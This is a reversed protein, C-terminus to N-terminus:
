EALGSVTFSIVIPTNPGIPMTYSVPESSLNYEDLLTIRAYTGATSIDTYDQTRGDGIKVKVDSITIIGEAVARSPIDTSVFLMRIKTDDEAFGMDGTTMTVTYEGNHDIVADEFAGGFDVANNDADWGTLRGFFGPNAESDRGYNAENWENRFTYKETQIGSYANYSAAKIQAIEDDTLPADASKEIPKGYIYNFTVEITKVDTFAAPDVIIASAGELDGDARRADAPIESVWENYLNERTTIGDDSATYGKGLEIPEGNVKVETVDIYYGNFTNEGNVIGVAAFAVGQAPENFELGVIYEGPGNVQSITPVVPYENGDYWYQNTWSSDAFMLYATDTVPVLSFDVEVSKVAAFAEKDVIIPKADETTGDFSRADAPVESVWENYINMRTTIGDDSSTYGKEFPIAEGNVRIENIQLYAGPYTKEGNVIGLAAFALGQAEENFELGVTYDGFGDIQANKATVPYENGDYWYQNAWAADAYMIYATDIPFQHLVFDIEITKVAGFLEKDVIIPAAGDLSGDFSRADAPLESVWENYVNMRTEVGDDSSTYGKEFPIAEGNVRIEKIEITYNPLQAEGDKIGIAAFALGAAEGAETATFDLGVTHLGSHNLVDNKAIVPTETGDNWYSASWDGNAYMIYAVPADDDAPAEAPEGTVAAIVNEVASTVAASAAAAGEEFKAKAEEVAQSVQEAVSAKVSELEQAAAKAAEDAQAKVAALEDAAAKAAEEAQTKANALEDAA